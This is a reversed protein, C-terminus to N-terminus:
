ELSDADAWDDQTFTLTSVLDASGLFANSAQTLYLRIEYNTLDYRNSILSVIFGLDDSVVQKYGLKLHNSSVNNFDSLLSQNGKSDVFGITSYNLGFNFHFEESEQSFSVFSLNLSLFLIIILRLM